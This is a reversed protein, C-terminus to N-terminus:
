HRFKAKSVEQAALNASSESGEPILFGADLNCRIEDESTIIAAEYEEVLFVDGDAFWVGHRRSVM